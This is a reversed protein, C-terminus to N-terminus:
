LWTRPDVTRGNQRTEFHLHCGNSLGTSGEYGIVQGRRVHGHWVRIRTLHNYTTSLDVGGHYGHDIVVRNGYGGGWGASVIYGDAAAHIPTGCPAAYDRGEHLRAYHLIPHYRYGFESSIWGLTTPASLFGRGGAGQTRGATRAARARAALIRALRASEARMAAIRKKEAAVQTALAKAQSRQNAALRELASKAAAARDRAATAADLAAAARRQAAASEQRLATLRAEQAVQDAQATALRHMSANQLEVVTGVMALRDAFEQPSNSSMAVSLQGMGQEQYLQSAFQALQIHGAAISARTAALEDEAKSESARAVALDQEAQAEAAAAATAADQAQTLATRAAPIKSRTTTLATYTRSLAASTDDLDQKLNQITSDVKKKKDKTGSPAQVAVRGPVTAAEAATAGFLALTSVVAAGGAM